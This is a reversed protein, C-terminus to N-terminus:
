NEVRYFRWNWPIRFKSVIKNTFYDRIVFKEEGNVDEYNYRCSGVKSTKVHLKNKNDIFYFKM